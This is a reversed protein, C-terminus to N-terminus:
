MGKMMMQTIVHTAGSVAGPDTKVNIVAPLSSRFARKLAPELKNIDTVAEGYGGMAKAIRDFRIFGIDVGQLKKDGPYTIEIQHKTMGWASDNCIVVVFPLNHKVATEIEMFNMGVAGDGTILAVRKDPNAAKTGLAFPIGVGMCGLPGGKVYHGPTQVEYAVDTWSQCEGGDVVAIGEEGLFESVINAVKAPHIAKKRPNLVKKKFERYGKERIREAEKLWKQFNPKLPTERIHDNMKVIFSGLDSIVSFDSKVNRSIEDPSIDVQVIKANKNFSNGFGIYISLRIGLLLILDAKGSIERFGRPSSPSAPGFCYKDPIIGRGMNLTFSPINLNKIFEELHKESKSYWSGSGFIAIPKEAKNILALVKRIQSIGPEYDIEPVSLDFASLDKQETKPYLVEYSTGLYVPGPKGTISIRYANSIYEPIRNIDYITRAWKTVPRVMAMQDVEQLSMRDNEEIGSRGAIVMMPSNSLYAGALGTLANTLGPGATVLCIGPTRTVRGYADAAMAAGQEHHTDILRIGLDTCAKYIPNIHGGALTFIDRVGMDYLTNALLWGGQKKAM